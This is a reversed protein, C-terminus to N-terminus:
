VGTVSALTLLVVAQVLQGGEKLRDSYKQGAVGRANKSLQTM